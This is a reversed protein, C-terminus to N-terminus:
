AASIVGATALATIIQAIASRAQTDVVAGGSAPSVAGPLHWGNIYRITRGTSLDLVSMGNRPAAFLWTGAQFAALSGAQGTWEGTPSNGVLWCEGDQPAPPPSSAEGEIAPHLLMDALAFAENVFSEKQAQGTLTATSRAACVKRSPPPICRPRRAM